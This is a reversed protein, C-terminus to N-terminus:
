TTKQQIKEIYYNMQLFHKGKEFDFSNYDPLNFSFDDWSDLIIIPLDTTKKINETFTNRLVIPVIKLYYCEWLRHTDLGNGEPCICFKYESMRIINSTPDVMPLFNIINHLKDFCEKRKSYNTEIKFNIFVNKTKERPNDFIYKFINLNGHPWQSNAIGIPLFFIKDHIYSLNQTYWCILKECNIIKKFIDCEIINMDSNHTILIFPNMFFDIVTSLEEILDTYCFIKKPNDYKQLNTITSINKQKYKQIAINPNYQFYYDNGIYIDALNQLREGTVINDINM